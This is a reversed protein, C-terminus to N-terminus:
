GHVTARRALYERLLLRAATAAKIRWRPPNALLVAFAVEPRSAPAFGVFWSYDLTPNSRSLSGTKGAVQIGRLYPRGRRQMFGRKASGVTTTRVMMEALARALSQRLVRQATSRESAVIRGNPLVTHDVVHPWRLLGGSAAVGALAAGHLASLESHWFGAAARARELRDDPVDAASPKVPLEFPVPQNFGLREAWSLMEEHDLHKLALKAIVANLSHALADALSRCTKDQRPNDVLNSADLHRLGGHYCVTTRPRVGNALLASTTVLKYVSAAPAWPTLCLQSSDLDPDMQSAGAMVLVEGSAVEYMVIAGYPIEYSELLERAAQQLPPDITYVVRSGDGLRQELHGHRVHARALSLPRARAPHKPEPSPSQAASTVLLPPPPASDSRHNLLVGLGLVAIAVLLALRSRSQLLRVM